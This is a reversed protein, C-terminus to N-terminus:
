TEDRYPELMNKCNLEGIKNMSEKFKNFDDKELLARIKDICILIYMLNEWRLHKDFTGIVQGYFLYLLLHYQLENCTQIPTNKTNVTNEFDAMLQQIKQIDKRVSTRTNAETLAELM